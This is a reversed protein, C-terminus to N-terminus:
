GLGQSAGLWEGRDNEEWETKERAGRKEAGLRLSRASTKDVPSSTEKAAANTELSKKRQKRAHQIWGEKGTKTWGGEKSLTQM